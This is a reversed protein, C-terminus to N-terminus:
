RSMHDEQNPVLLQLYNLSADLSVLFDLIAHTTRLFDENSVEAKRSIRRLGERHVSAGKSSMAADVLILPADQSIM